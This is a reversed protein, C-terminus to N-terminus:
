RTGRARHDRDHRPHHMAMAAQPGIGLAEIGVAEVRLPPGRSLAEGINRKGAPRADADARSRSSALHQDDDRHERPAEPEAQCRAMRNAGDAVDAQM